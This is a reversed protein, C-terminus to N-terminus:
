ACHRDNMLHVLLLRYHALHDNKRKLLPQLSLQKLITLLIFLGMLIEFPSTLCAFVLCLSVFDREGAVNMM